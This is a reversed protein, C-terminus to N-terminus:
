PVQAYRVCDTEDRSRGATEVEESGEAQHLDLQVIEPILFRLDLFLAAPNTADDDASTGCGAAEILHSVAFHLWPTQVRDNRKPGLGVLDRLYVM